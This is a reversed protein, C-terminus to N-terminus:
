KGVVIGECTSVEASLQVLLPLLLLPSYLSRSKEGQCMQSPSHDCM